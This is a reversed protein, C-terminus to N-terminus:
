RTTSPHKPRGGAHLIEARLAAARDRNLDAARELFTAIATLEALDFGAVLTEVPPRIARFVERVERVREPVATVMQRRGDDPDPQRQVYGSRELRNVVGTIAGSTLGTIAALQSGAMPGREVLLDLCKHDAPGLGLRDAIAQHFLVTATSHQRSLPGTIRDALEQWREDHTTVAPEL